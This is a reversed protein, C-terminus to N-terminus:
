AELVAVIESAAHELVERLIGDLLELDDVGAVLRLEAAAGASYDIHQSFRAGVLRAARREEEETVVREIGGCHSALIRGLQLTVVRSQSEATRHDSLAGPVEAGKFIKILLSRRDKRRVNRGAQGRAFIERPLRLNRVVATEAFVILSQAVAVVHAHLRRPRAVLIQILEGAGGAEGAGARVIARGGEEAGGGHVRDQAVARQQLAREAIATLTERLVLVTLRAAPAVVNNPQVSARAEVEPRRDAAYLAEVLLVQGQAFDERDEGAIFVCGFRACLVHPGHHVAHLPRAELVHDRGRM